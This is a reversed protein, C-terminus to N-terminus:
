RKGWCAPPCSGPRYVPLGACAPPADLVGCAGLQQAMDWPGLTWPSLPELTLVLSRPPDTGSATPRPWDAPPRTLTWLVRRGRPSARGTRTAPSESPGRASTGAALTQAPDGGRQASRRWCLLPPRGERSAGWRGQGGPDRRRTRYGQLSNRGSGSTLGRHSVSCLAAPCGGPAQTNRM